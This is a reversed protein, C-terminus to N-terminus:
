ASTLRAVPGPRELGGDDQAAARARIARLCHRTAARYCRVLSAAPKQSPDWGLLSQLFVERTAILALDRDQLLQLCRRYLAPGYRRYLRDAEAADPSSLDTRGRALSAAPLGKM